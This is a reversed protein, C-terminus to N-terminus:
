QKGKLREIRGAAIVFSAADQEVGTAIASLAHTAPFIPGSGCFPDLVRMGPRVSRSLLDQFLAVPKQAPHGLNEDPPCEIVDGLLRTCRLDGRRAYLLCEYKRQPGHEPWPARFGQPKFWILPTRFVTWGADTFHDKVCGFNEIDCFFYLHADSKAVRSLEPVLWGMMTLWSDFDDKYFHAGTAMGGSDGFTDAGMGYPPDTCIVDFTADPTRALVERCDGNVLEHREGIFEKGMVAAVKENKEREEVRKLIKAAEKLSKAARVEPRSLNQAVALTRSVAHPHRGTEDALDTVRPIPKGAAEAQATRLQSLRAVAEATEQWTLDKRRLNEELEAEEADLLSLEGLNVHPIMDSVVTMGDYRYTGGLEFIEKIARLRREGAVLVYDDGEQRLVIAHLLGRDQISAILEQHAAEDHERRQRNEKIKVAGTYIYRIM